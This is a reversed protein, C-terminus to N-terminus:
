EVTLRLALLLPFPNEIRQRRASIIPKYIIFQIYNQYIPLKIKDLM